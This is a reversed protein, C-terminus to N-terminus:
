NRKEWKIINRCHVVAYLVVGPILGWEKLSIAYVLWLVQNLLGLRPGWVSKSGMLWLMVASTISLVWAM